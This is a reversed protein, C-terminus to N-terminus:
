PITVEEPVNSDATTGNGLQGWTNDGWCRIERDRFMGRSHRFGASLAMVNTDSVVVVPTSSSTITGGGLPGLNNWGWCYGTGSETVACTHRHGASMQVVREDEPLLVAVPDWADEDTDLISQLLM